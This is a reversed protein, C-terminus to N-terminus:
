QQRRFLTTLHALLYGGFWGLCGYNLISLVSRGPIGVPLQHPPGLVAGVALGVPLGIACLTAVVRPGVTDITRRSLIGGIVVGLIGGVAMAFRGKLELTTQSFEAGSILIAHLGGAFGGAVLSGFLAFTFAPGRSPGCKPCVGMDTASAYGCFRCVFSLVPASCQPCADYDRLAFRHGCQKCQYETHYRESNM